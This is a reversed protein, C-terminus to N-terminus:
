SIEKNCKSSFFQIGKSLTNRLFYLLNSFFFCPLCYQYHGMAQSDLQERSSKTHCINKKLVATNYMKSIFISNKCYFFDNVKHTFCASLQLFHFLEHFSLYMYFCPNYM